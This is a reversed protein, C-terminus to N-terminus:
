RIGLAARSRAAGSATAWSRVHDQRRHAVPMSEGRFSREQGPVVRLDDNSGAVVSFGSRTKVGWTLVEASADEWLQQGHGLLTTSEYRRYGPPASTWTPEDVRTGGAADYSLDDDVGRPHGVARM